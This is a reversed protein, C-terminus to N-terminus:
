LWLLVDVSNFQKLIKIAKKKDYFLMIEYLSVNHKYIM